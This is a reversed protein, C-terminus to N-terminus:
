KETEIENLVDVIRSMLNNLLMLRIQGFGGYIGLKNRARHLHNKVTTFAIGFTMATQKGSQGSFIHYKLIQKERPSLTDWKEGFM